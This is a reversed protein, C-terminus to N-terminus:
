KGEECMAQLDSKVQGLVTGYKDELSVLTRRLMAVYEPDNNIDIHVNQGMKQSLEEEKQRLRPAYQKDVAERYRDKEELYEEFFSELQSFMKGLLKANKIFSHFAEGVQRMKKAGSQDQPLILNALLVQVMGEKMWKQKKQGLPALSEKINVSADDLFKSIVMKGETRCKDAEVAEKNGEVERTRELAIEWASKIESM